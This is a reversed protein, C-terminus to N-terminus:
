LLKNGIEQQVIRMVEILPMNRQKAISVCDDYEPKFKSIGESFSKKVRVIGLSTEIPLIERDIMWKCADYERVGLTTTEQFLVKLVLDRQSPLCLVTIKQAPRMKKMLIPTLFVDQAGVEFLRNVINEYLEPNMDDINCELILASEHNYGALSNEQKGIFIRLVNPIESDRSGAGYGTQELTFSPYKQFSDVLTAVIAAGTPTTAEFPVRGMSVPINKILEATAPAPVPYTGHACRVTGSGLEVTSAIIMDPNLYDICIAAGVIDVISDIAGVEHFHVQEVPINHVKSEAIALKEFIKISLNKVKDSLTSDAIIRRIESFTRQQHHKPEHYKHTKIAELQPSKFTKHDSETSDTTLVNLRKASIGHTVVHEIEIQYGSLGLKKLESQIYSYPVGLDIMAALHMDGSIGAFCDYFLIKKM